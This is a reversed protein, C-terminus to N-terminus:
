KRIAAASAARIISADFSAKFDCKKGFVEEAVITQATGRVRGDEIQILSKVNENGSWNISAGDCWMFMSQLEDNQNITLKIQTQFNAFGEDLKEPKSLAAQLKTIDIAKETLLVHTVTNESQKSEYVIVNALTYTKGGLTLKGSNELKPANALLKRPTSTQTLLSTDFTIEASYSHEFFTKPKLVCNGRARGEEVLSSGVLDDTSGTGPVKEAILQMSQPSDKEDLVLKLHPIPLKGIQGWKEEPVNSQLLKLLSEQKLPTSTAVVNTQWRGNSIVEYAIIEHLEIKKGDVTVSCQTALKGMKAIGQMPKESRKPVNPKEPITPTKNGAITKKNDAMTKKAASNALKIEDWSMGMTSIKVTRVEDSNSITIALSAKGSTRKLFASKETVSDNGSKSWTKSDLKANYFAVLQEPTFKHQYEISEFFDDYKLGEAVEPIPIDKPHPALDEDWLFGKPTLRIECGGERMEVRVVLKRNQKVFTQVWFNKQLNDKESKTWQQQGLLSQYFEGASKMDNATKLRIDGRSKMYSVGTADKPLPIDTVLPEQGFGSVQAFLMLSLAFSLLATPQM